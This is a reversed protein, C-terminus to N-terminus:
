RNMRMRSQPIPRGKERATEVWERIVRELNRLAASRSPGDAMCGPLDDARAIFAEDAPSWRIRVDYRPIM